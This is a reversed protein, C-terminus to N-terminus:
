VRHLDIGSKLPDTPQDDVPEVGEINTIENKTNESHYSSLKLLDQKREEETKVLPSKFNPSNKSKFVSDISSPKNKKFPRLLIGAFFSYFEFLMFIVSEYIVSFILKVVKYM